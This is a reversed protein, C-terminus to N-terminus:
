VGDLKSLIDNHRSYFTQEERIMGSRFMIYGVTWASAVAGFVPLLVNPAYGLHKECWSQIAVGGMFFILCM